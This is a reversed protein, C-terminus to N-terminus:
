KGKKCTICISDSDPQCDNGYYPCTIILKNDNVELFDNEVQEVDWEDDPFTDYFEGKGFYDGEGERVRMKANDKNNAEILIPQMHVELMYVIYKAM